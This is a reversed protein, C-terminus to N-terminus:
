KIKPFPRETLRLRVSQSLSIIWCVEPIRGNRGVGEVGMYLFKLGAIQSNQCPIMDLSGLRTHNPQFVTMGKTYVKLREPQFICIDKTCVKLGLCHCRISPYVFHYVLSKVSHTLSLV